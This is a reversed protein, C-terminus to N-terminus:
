ADGLPSDLYTARRAVNMWVRDTSSRIFCASSISQDVLYVDNPRYPELGTM